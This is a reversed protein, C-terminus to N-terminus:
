PRPVRTFTQSTSVTGDGIQGFTDNGMCYTQGDTGQACTLEQGVAVARFTQGPVVNVPVNQCAWTFGGGPLGSVNGCIENSVTSGLQQADNGGWCWIEGATTLGCNHEFINNANNALVLDFSLGGSVAIPTFHNPAVGIGLVRYPNNTGWCYGVHDATVGCSSLGGATVHTFLLGGAVAVPAPRDTRTGDGNVGFAGWGWCWATHDTALACGNVLGASVELFTLPSAVAIPTTACPVHGVSNVIQCQDTTLAGLAGYSNSGWCYAQGTTTLGCTSGGGGVSVSAWQLGGAVLSPAARNSQGGDGIGGLNGSGWCYADGSVTVGCSRGDGASIWTFKLGGDVLAPTPSCPPTGTSPPVTCTSTSVSGLQGVNNLGWCYVDQAPTLGCVHSAGIAVQTFTEFAVVGYTSFHTTQGTITHTSPDVSSGKVEVWRGGVLTGLRLAAETFHAPLRTPDYTLAITIPVSFQTGDPGFEVASGGVVNANAPQAPDPTVPTASITLGGSVAGPPISLTAQTGLLHVLGGAAGVTAATALQADISITITSGPASALRVALTSPNGLTFPVDFSAVQRSFSSPSVISTGDLTIEASSARNDGNADGNVVHLVAGPGYGALTFGVTVPAGKARTVTQPGFVPRLQAPDLSFHPRAPPSLVGRANSAANTTPSTLDHCSLTVLAIVAIALHAPRIVQLSM